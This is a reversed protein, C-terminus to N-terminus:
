ISVIVIPGFLEFVCAIVKCSKLASPLSSIATTFLFEKPPVNLSATNCPLPTPSKVGQTSIVAGLKVFSKTVPSKSASPMISITVIDPADDFLIEKKLFLPAPNLACTIEFGM